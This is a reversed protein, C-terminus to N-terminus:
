WKASKNAPDTTIYFEHVAAAAFGASTTRTTACLFAPGLLLRGGVPGLDDIRGRCQLEM